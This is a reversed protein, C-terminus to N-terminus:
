QGITTAYKNVMFFYFTFLQGWCEDLDQEIHERSAQLIM